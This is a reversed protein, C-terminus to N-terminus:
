NTTSKENQYINITWGAVTGDTYDVRRVEYETYKKTSEVLSKVELRGYNHAESQSNFLKGTNGIPTALKKGNTDVNGAENKVKNNSQSSTNNNSTSNSNSSSNSSANSNNNTKNINDKSSSNSSSTSSTSSNNSTNSNSNENNNNKSSDKNDSNTSSKTTSNTTTNNKKASDSDSGTFNLIAFVAGVFVVIGIATIVLIRLLRDINKM